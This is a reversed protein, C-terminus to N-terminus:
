KLKKHDYISYVNKQYIIHKQSDVTKYRLIYDLNGDGNFDGIDDIRLREQSEFYYDNIIGNKENIRLLIYGWGSTGILSVLNLDIMIFRNKKFYFLNVSSPLLNSMDHISYSLAVPRENFIIIPSSESLKELNNLLIPHGVDRITGIESECYFGIKGWHTNEEFFLITNEEKLVKSIHTQITEFSDVKEIFFKSKSTQSWLSGSVIICLFTAVFEKKFFM